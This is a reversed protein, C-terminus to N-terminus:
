TNMETPADDDDRRRYRTRADSGTKPSRFSLAVRGASGAFAARLRQQAADLDAASIMPWQLPSGRWTDDPPLWGDLTLGVPTGDAATILSSAPAPRVIRGGHSVSLATPLRRVATCLDANGPRYSVAFLPGEAAADFALARSDGVPEALELVLAPEAAGYAAPTADILEDGIRVAIREVFRPHIMPDGTLVETTSLVFGPAVYPRQEDIIRQPDSAYRRDWEAHRGPADPVQGNHPRLTFEVEVLSLRVAEVIAALDEPQAADEDDEAARATAAPLSLVIMLALLRMMM